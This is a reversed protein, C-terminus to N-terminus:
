FIPANKNRTSNSATLHDNLLRRFRAHLVKVLLLVEHGRVEGDPLEVEKYPLPDLQAGLVREEEKDVVRDGRGAGGHSREVLDTDAKRGLNYNM